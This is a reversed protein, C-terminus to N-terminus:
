KYLLLLLSTSLVFLVFVMSKSGGTCQTHRDVLVVVNNV